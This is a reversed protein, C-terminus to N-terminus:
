PFPKHKVRALAKEVRALSRRATDAFAGDEGAGALFRQWSERALELETEEDYTDQGAMAEHGLAEYYDIEHGPEFFVGDDRLVRMSDAKVLMRAQEIAREHEGLRDLAVALGWRALLESRQDGSLAIAREYHGVAEELAGSLMTVEALNSRLLPAERADLAFAIAREYATAADTFRHEYTFLMALEFAVNNARYSPDVRALRELTAIAEATRRLARCRWVSGPQEWLSLAHARTYLLAPADPDLALARDLRAIASEVHAQRELHSRVLDSLARLRGLRAAASDSALRLAATRGCLTEWKWPAKRRAADLHVFAQDLLERARELGPRSLDQWFPATDADRGGGSALAPQPAAVVFFALALPGLRQM